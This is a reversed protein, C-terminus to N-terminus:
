IYNFNLLNGKMYNIGSDHFHSKAKSVHQLM